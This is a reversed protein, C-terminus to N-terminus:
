FRLKLALSFFVELWLLLALWFTAGAMRAHLEAWAHQESLGLKSCADNDNLVHQRPLFFFATAFM